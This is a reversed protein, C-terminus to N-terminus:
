QLKVEKNTPRGFNGAGTTIFPQVSGGKGILVSSFMLENRKVYFCLNM